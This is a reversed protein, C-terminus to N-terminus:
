AAPRPPQCVKDDSDTGDVNEKAQIHFWYVAFLQYQNLTAKLGPFRFLAENIPQQPDLSFMRCCRKWLNLSMQELRPSKM